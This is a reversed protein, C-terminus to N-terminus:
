KKLVALLWYPDVRPRLTQNTTLYAVFEGDKFIRPPRSTFKNFPSLLSFEGGYKGFQNLISNSSFRSGYRGFENCLADSAFCNTTIRGLMQGDDAIIVAGELVGLALSRSSSGPKAARLERQESAALLSTAFRVLWAELNQLEQESLKTLGSARFEEATMLQKLSIRASEQATAEHGLLVMLVALCIVKVRM